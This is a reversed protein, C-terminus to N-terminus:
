TGSPVIYLTIFLGVEGQDPRLFKVAHIYGRLAKTKEGLTELLTCRSWHNELNYPNARIARGYCFVAQNIDQLQFLFM